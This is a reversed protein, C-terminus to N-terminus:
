AAFTLPLPDAETIRLELRFRRRRAVNWTVYRGTEPDRLVLVGHQAGFHDLAHRMLRALAPGPPRNRHFAAALELMFGLKRKSRHEHEGLYGILYGLVLLYVPRVLHARRFGLDGLVHSAILMSAPYSAALVGTVGMTV